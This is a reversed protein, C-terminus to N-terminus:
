NLNLPLPQRLRQTNVKQPISKYHKSHYRTKSPTEYWLGPQPLPDLISHCRLLMQKYLFSERKLILGESQYSVILCSSYIRLADQRSQGLGPIDADKSYKILYLAYSVISITTYTFIEITELCTMKDRHATQLSSVFHRGPNYCCWSSCSICSPSWLTIM